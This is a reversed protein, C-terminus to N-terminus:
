LAGTRGALSAVMAVLEVPEIPKPVHVQYGANLARVRDEVRAYATLAIAPIRGGGAAAELSRVRRILDYGDEEPMGIDSLLVDPPARQYRELAEAVSGATTVESGCRELVASLLERADEEDDVVLVRLGTLQPPCELPATGGATPHRRERLEPQRRSVMVPLQVVFTAGRGAGASEAHVTGGHLEVLQQVISLGLGLGGHARTSTQDAQRFRDFVHPLFEPDIGRGTDSVTIEVHSNIRELRVQVRGGKPTFKVANTLLNWVVQQLRDSDGSVPGAQPDLLVQLRINKAEAAPRVADVAAGVVHSLEILHVDLRLKGTIIRSVDLLDDILQVQSRANRQITELARAATKEDLQGARLLNAWGLISTLPTRLEHSLTSLFEDKLRNAERLEDEVRKVDDIDTNSGIWMLVNGAADRMAHARSLHWRYEGDARRFRHEFQFPEGTAISHQWRRVNEKVDDPHIFQTWGWDRIQAFSLGTFETWQQNFYDVDGNPRATFIKQPMSEALFRFREASERLAEEARRQDHVDRVTGIWERVRGDPHLLPVGSAQFWRYEGSRAHWLRGESRYISGAAKAAEWSALVSARDEPHIAESWGFDRHQEWTQGTYAQWSPQPTIFRGEPDVTWVISTLVSVLSRYREESERLSEEAEKRETIDTAACYLLQEQPYPKTNWSIWRYTGDQCRYRNEFSVTEQGALLKEAEKITREHDDPHTFHLWPHATLEEATWGFTREWAPSVWKFHGDFGAIVLLDTGVAFFREREAEARQRATDDRLIKTFGRLRGAEDRLAMMLGNAWFRSGDKRVHWRQNEARGLEKATHLEHGCADRENDEPTFIDCAKRGVFEEETYGLLKEVGPNWSAANGDLDIAFIAFDEISKVILQLLEESQLSPQSTEQNM